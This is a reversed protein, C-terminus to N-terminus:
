DSQAKALDTRRVQVNAQLASSSAFLNRVQRVTRALQAQSEQLAVKADAPDLRVLPQGAKVFQTNDAGIAVVTGPIQPTIQVVNGSVYADDTYVSYRLDRDWYVGWAAGLILFGGLIFVLWRVRPSKWASPKETGDRTTM